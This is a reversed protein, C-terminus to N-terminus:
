VIYKLIIKVLNDRTIPKTLFDNFGIRRARERNEKQSYATQAIIPIVKDTERIIKTAQYGDMYPMDLDMLIIDIDQITQFKEICENGDMCKIIDVKYPLLMDHILLQNVELDEAVLIKKNELISTDMNEIVYEGPEHKVVDPSINITFSITTGENLRSVINYKANLLKIFSKFISLGLGAGLTQRNVKRFRDFIIEHLKNEVGIGEDKVYITVSKDQTYFGLHISGTTSFKISNDILRQLCEDIIYKDTIVKVTDNNDLVIKLKKNQDKIKVTYKVQLDKILEMLNFESYKIKIQESDIRSIMIINDILSLLYEVNQIIVRSHEEFESGVAYRIIESFGVIANMPTRIEHTMNSLFANKLRESEEARTKEKSLRNNTEVLETIDILVMHCYPVEDYTVKTTFINFTFIKDLKKNYYEYVFRHTGNENINNWLGEWDTKKIDSSVRYIYKDILDEEGSFDSLIKNHYIILGDQNIWLIPLVGNEISYEFIYQLKTTLDRKSLNTM